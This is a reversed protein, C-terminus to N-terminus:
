TRKKGAGAKQQAAAMVRAAHRRWFARVAKKRIKALLQTVSSRKGQARGWEAKGGGSGGGSGTATGLGVNGSTGSPPPPQPVSLGVRGASTGGRNGGHAELPPLGATHGNGHNWRWELGGGGEDSSDEEEDRGEDEEEDGEGEEEEEEEEEEEMGTDMIGHHGAAPTPFPSALALATRACGWYASQVQLATRIARLGAMTPQKPGPLAPPQEGLLARLSAETAAATARLNYGGELVLALPAVAKLLATMHSFCEATLRCGGIPDGEAADFGASVIILDPAFEYAIPLLLHTFAALYDGNQIGGCDWAVNVTYGRGPGTGVEHAAGTGPYFSGHDHRHLSMYMVTPDDEFIHQTGNGHHVDWDLILVRQAGCGQAARAAVAASNFFCFGMAMSSEAHHGPPRVIAAGHAAEGQVVKCAVEAAGGAALRACHFTHANAYMDSTMRLELPPIDGPGREVALARVFNILEGSHVAQLAELSAEPCEVRTCREALNSALIRSMVARVRDPREPHPLLKGEEHLEMREDWVLAIRKEQQRELAAMAAAAARKAVAEPESMDLLVEEEQAAKGAWFISSDESRSHGCDECQQGRMRGTCNICFVPPGQMDEDEDEDEEGEDLPDEYEAEEFEEPLGGQEDQGDAGYSSTDTTMGADVEMGDGKRQDGSLLEEESSTSQYHLEVAAGRAHGVGQESGQQGSLQQQQQQLQGEESSTDPNDLAPRADIKRPMTALASAEMGAAGGSDSSSVVQWEDGEEALVQQGDAHRHHAATAAAGAAAASSAATSSTMGGLSAKAQVDRSYMHQAPM